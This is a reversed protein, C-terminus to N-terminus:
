KRMVKKFSEKIHWNKYQLYEVLIIKDNFDIYWEWLVVYMKTAIIAEINKRKIYKNFDNNNDIKNM